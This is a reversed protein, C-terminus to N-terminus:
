IIDNVGDFVAAIHCPENTPKNTQNNILQFLGAHMESVSLKKTM